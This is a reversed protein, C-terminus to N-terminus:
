ASTYHLVNKRLRMRTNWQCRVEAAILVLCFRMM